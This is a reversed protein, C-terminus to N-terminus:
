GGAVPPFVSVADGPEIPTELGDLHEVERGNRLVNIQPQIGGDGDLILGALEPFEEEIAVLVGGITDADDYARYITKQGVTERFNAFFRLEIADEDDQERRAAGDHAGAGDGADDADAAPEPDSM